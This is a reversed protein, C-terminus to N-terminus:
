FKKAVLEQLKLSYVKVNKDTRKLISHKSVRYAIDEKADYGIFIKLEKM